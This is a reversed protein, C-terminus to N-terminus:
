VREGALFERALASMMLGHVHAAQASLERQQAEQHTAASMRKDQTMVAELEFRAQTLPVSQRALLSAGAGRGMPPLRQADQEDCLLVFAADMVYGWFLLGCVDPETELDFWFWCWGNHLEVVREDEPSVPAQGLPVQELAREILPRVWADRERLSPHEGWRLAQELLARSVRELAAGAREGLAQEIVSWGAPQLALTPWAARSPHACVRWLWSLEGARQASGLAQEMPCPQRALMSWLAADGGGLFARAYGQAGERELDDLKALLEVVQALAALPDHASRHVLSRLEGFVASM